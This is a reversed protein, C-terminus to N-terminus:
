VRFGLGEFGYARFGKLDQTRGGCCGDKMPTKDLM